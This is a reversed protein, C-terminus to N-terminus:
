PTKKGASCSETSGCLLFTQGWSAPKFFHLLQTALLAVKPPVAGGKSSCHRSRWYLSRCLVLLPVSAVPRLRGYVM